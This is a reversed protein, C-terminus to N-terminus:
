LNVLANKKAGGPCPVPLSGAGAGTVLANIILLPYHGSATDRYGQNIYGPCSLFTLTIIGSPFSMLPAVLLSRRALHV